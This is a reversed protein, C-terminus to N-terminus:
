RFVTQGRRNQSWVAEGAGRVLPREKGYSVTDIRSARVGLAVLYEKVANARRDGLALNYERTGREDCHGEIRVRIRTYYGLWEAQKALVDRARSSLESSDLAFLVTDGGAFEVFGDLSEATDSPELADAEVPTTDVPAPAPAAPEEVVTDDSPVAEVELEADKKSCAAVLSTLAVLALLKRTGSHNM